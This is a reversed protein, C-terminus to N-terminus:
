RAPWCATLEGLHRLEALGWAAALLRQAADDSLAGAVNAAFKAVVEDDSMPNRAHGRPHEATETLTAGGAHVTIRNPIGAPYLATLAPSETLTTRSM